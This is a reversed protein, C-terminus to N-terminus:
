FANDPLQALADIAVTIADTLVLAEEVIINEHYVLSNLPAEIANHLEADLGAANLHNVLVQSEAM